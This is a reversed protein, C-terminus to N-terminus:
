IPRPLIRMWPKASADSQYASKGISGYNRPVDEATAFKSKLIRAGSANTLILAHDRLWVQVASGILEMKVDVDAENEHKEPVDCLYVNNALTKLKRVLQTKRYHAFSAVLYADCNANNLRGKMETFAADMETPATIISRVTLHVGILANGGRPLLAIAICSKVNNFKLKTDSQVGNTTYIPNKTTLAKPDFENVHSTM